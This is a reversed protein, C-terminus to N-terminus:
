LFRYWLSNLSIKINLSYLLFHIGICCTVLWIKWSINIRSNRQLVINMRELTNVRWSFSLNWYIKAELICIKISKMDKRACDKETYSLLLSRLHAWPIRLIIIMFLFVCKYFQYPRFINLLYMNEFCVFSCPAYAHFRSDYLPKAKTLM